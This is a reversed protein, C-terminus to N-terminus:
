VKKASAVGAAVLPAVIGNLTRWVVKLVKQRIKANSPLNNYLESWLERKVEEVALRAIADNENDYL